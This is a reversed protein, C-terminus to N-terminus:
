LGTIFSVTEKIYPWYYSFREYRPVYITDGAYIKTDRSPKIWEGSSDRIIRIKSSNAKNLTGGAQEIYYQYDMGEVFGYLGPTDVEGNVSVVTTKTSVFIRDQDKLIVDKEPANGAYLQSFDESIINRSEAIMQRLYRYERTSLDGAPFRRLYEYESHTIDEASVRMLYSRKLDAMETPGGSQKLIESLTTKGLDIAYEGPYKVEGQITIYRKVQFDPVQRIYIRDGAELLYNQESEPNRMVEAASFYKRNLEGNTNDFRVLECNEEDIGNDLGFALEILDSIREGPLIEYKLQNENTKIGVAGSLYVFDKATGVIIVDGDKIFPNEALEGLVLYKQLDLVSQEEKRRLVINRQSPNKIVKEVTNLTDTITNALKIVMSVRASPPVMYIGPNKVAGVVNVSYVIQDASNLLEQYDNAKAMVLMSLLLLIFLFKRM